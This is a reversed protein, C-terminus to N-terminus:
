NLSLLLLFWNYNGENIKQSSHLFDCPSKATAVYVLRRHWKRKKESLRIDRVGDGFTDAVDDDGGGCADGGGGGGLYESWNPM